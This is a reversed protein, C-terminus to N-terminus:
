WLVWLFYNQQHSTSVYWRVTQHSFHVRPGGTCQKIDLSVHGVLATNSLLIPCTAWWHVTQHYPVRPGGTYQKILSTSVHGVPASNSSLPCTAWRHMQVVIIVDHKDWEDLCVGGWAACFVLVWECESAESPPDFEEQAHNCAYPVCCVFVNGHHAPKRRASLSRWAAGTYLQISPVCCVFVDGHHVREWRASLSRWAAGIWLQISPVCCVFMHVTRLSEGPSCPVDHQEQEYSYLYCVACLCIFQACSRVQRVLFTMSSRNVFAYNAACAMASLYNQGEQSNIHACALQTCFPYPATPIQAKTHTHTRTRAHTNTQRDTHTHTHARAHTIPRGQIHKNAFMCAPPASTKGAHAKYPDHTNTCTHVHTNTLTWTHTHM